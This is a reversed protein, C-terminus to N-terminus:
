KVKQFKSSVTYCKFIIEKLHIQPTLIEAEFDEDARTEGYSQCHLCDQCTCYYNLELENKKRRTVATSLEVGSKQHQFSRM